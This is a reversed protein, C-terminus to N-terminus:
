GCERPEGHSIRNRSHPPPFSPRHPPCTSPPPSPSSSLFWTPTPELSFLNSEERQIYFICVHCSLATCAFFFFFLSVGMSNSIDSHKKDDKIRGKRGNMKSLTKLVWWLWNNNKKLQSSGEKTATSFSLVYCWKIFCHRLPKMTKDWQQSCGLSLSHERLPKLSQFALVSSIDFDPRKKLQEWM